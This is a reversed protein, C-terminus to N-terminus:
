ETLSQITKEMRRDLDRSVPPLTNRVADEVQVTSPVAERSVGGSILAFMRRRPLSWLLLLALCFLILLPLPFAPDAHPLMVLGPVAEDAQITVAYVTDTFQIDVANGYQAQLAAVAALSDPNEQYDTHLEIKIQNDMDYLGASMFGLGKEFYGNVDQLIALLYNRSYTQTVFQVTSDDVILALIEAKGAEGAEGPLLGFTLSDPSGDTSWVGTIYDPITGAQNWSQWLQGANAYVEAGQVTPALFLLVFFICILRKM